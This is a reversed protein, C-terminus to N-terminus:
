GGITGIQILKGISLCSAYKYETSVSQHSTDVTRLRIEKARTITAGYKAKGNLTRSLENHIDMQVNCPVIDRIIKEVADINSVSHTYLGIVLEDLRPFIEYNGEGCITNLKTILAQYNYPLQDIWKALVVARRNELTDGPAITIGCLKEYYKLGEEDATTIFQNKEAQELNPWLKLNFYANVSQDLAKFEKTEELIPPIYSRYITDM